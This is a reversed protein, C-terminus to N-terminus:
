SGGLLQKGASLGPNGGAIITAGIGRRKTQIMRSEARSAQMVEPSSARVVAQPKVPELAKPPKFSQSGIAGVLASNAITGTTSLATLGGAAFGGVGAGIGGTIGGFLAGKWPDGGTLAATGAGVGAGVAVGGIISATAGTAAGATLATGVVAFLPAM